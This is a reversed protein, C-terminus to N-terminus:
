QVSHHKFYFRFFYKGVNLLIFLYEILSYPAQIFQTKVSYKFCVQAIVINQIM